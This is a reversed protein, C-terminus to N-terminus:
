HCLLLFWIAWSTQRLFHYHGKEHVWHCIHTQWRESLGQSPVTTAAPKVTSFILTLDFVRDLMNPKQKSLHQELFFFFHLGLLWSPFGLEHFSFISRWLIVVLLFTRPIQWLPTLYHLQNGERLQHSYQIVTNLLYSASGLQHNEYKRHSPGRSGFGGDSKSATKVSTMDKRTTTRSLWLLKQEHLTWTPWASWSSHM